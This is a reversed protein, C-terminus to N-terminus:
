PFTHSANISGTLTRALKENRHEDSSSSYAQHEIRHTRDDGAIQSVEHLHERDHYRYGKRCGEHICDSDHRGKLDAEDSHRLFLLLVTKFSALLNEEPGKLTCIFFELRDTEPM